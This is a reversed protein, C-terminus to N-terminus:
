WQCSYNITKARKLLNRLNEFQQKKVIRLALPVEDEKEQYINDINDILHLEKYMVIFKKTMQDM